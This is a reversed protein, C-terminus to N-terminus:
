NLNIYVSPMLSCLINSLEINGKTSFIKFAMWANLLIAKISHINEFLDGESNCNIDNCAETSSHPTRKYKTNYMFLSNQGPSRLM